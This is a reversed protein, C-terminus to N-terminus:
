FRRGSDHLASIDNSLRAELGLCQCLRKVTALKDLPSIMLVTEHEKAADIMESEPILGNLLCIARVDVLKAVRLIHPNIIDSVVLTRPCTNVILESIRDDAYFKDIEIDHPQVPLLLKAGIREALETLTMYMGGGQRSISKFGISYILLKFAM